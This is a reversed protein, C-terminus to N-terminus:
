CPGPLCGSCVSQMLEIKLLTIRGGKMDFLGDKRVQQLTRNMHVQSIGLADALAEQTLPLAFSSDSVLGIVDLRNHFELMLHILREYSTQLGLRMVQNHVRVRGRCHTQWVAEALASTVRSREQVLKMLGLADVALVSTLAVAEVPTRRLPAQFGVADGPLIFDIIQRRGDSLMRQHCAWGETLLQPRHAGADSSMLNQGADRRALLPMGRLLTIDDASLQALAAMRNIVPGSTKPDSSCMQINKPETPIQVSGRGRKLLTSGDSLANRRHRAGPREAPSSHGRDFTASLANSCVTM